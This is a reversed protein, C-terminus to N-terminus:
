LPHVLDIRMQLRGEVQVPGGQEGAQQTQKQQQKGKEPDKVNAYMFVIIKEMLFVRELDWKEAIIIGEKKHCKEFPGGRGGTRKEEVKDRRLGRWAARM